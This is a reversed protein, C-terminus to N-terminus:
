TKLKELHRNHESYTNSLEVIWVYVKENYYGNKTYDYIARSLDVIREEYWIAKPKVGLPPAEMRFTKAPRKEKSM